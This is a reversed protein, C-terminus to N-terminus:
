FRSRDAPGGTGVYSASSLPTDTYPTITAGARFREVNDRDWTVLRWENEVAFDPHKFRYSQGDLAAWFFGIIGSLAEHEGVHHVQYQMLPEACLALLAQILSRIFDKQKQEDYIVKLITVGPTQGQPMRLPVRAIDGPFQISFGQRGGYARWQSLSNDLESFCCLFYRAKLYVEPRSAMGADLLHRALGTYSGSFEESIVQQVLRYTYSLESRDNMYRYDTAWLRGSALIGLLGATDTYHYVVEPLPDSAFRPLAHDIAILESNTADQIPNM